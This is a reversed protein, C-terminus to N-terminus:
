SSCTFLAAAMDDHQGRGRAFSEVERFIQGLLGTPGLRGCHECVAQLREIGFTNGQMDMAETVGDTCFLVADGPHLLLTQTDYTSSPFLGPPIGCLELARCKGGALVLPGAMGASAVRMCRTSPDYVAYQIAAYRRPVGRISLRKNLIALVNSPSQGTKHVGRITGVALAAFMAAPLGKGAVDGLYLGVSGDTLEFYDLFDGGVEAVPQFGHSIMVAATRLSEGPLMVSQILRAEELEQERLRELAQAEPAPAMTEM